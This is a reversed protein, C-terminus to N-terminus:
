EPEREVRQEDENDLEAEIQSETPPASQFGTKLKGDRGVLFYTPYQSVAFQREIEGDDDLVIPFNVPHEALFKAASDSGQSSHVGMVVFGHDQYKEQLRNIEPLKKICPGCWTAWFDILIVKGKLEDPTPLAIPGIPRGQLVPMPKGLLADKIEAAAMMARAQYGPARLAVLLDGEDQARADGCFVEALQGDAFGAAGHGNKLHIHQFRILTDISQIDRTPSTCLWSWNDSEVLFLRGARCLSKGEPVDGIQRWDDSETEKVERYVRLRGLSERVFYPGYEVSVFPLEPHSKIVPTKNPDLKALVIKWELEDPAAVLTAVLWGNQDSLTLTQQPIDLGDGKLASITKRAPLETVATEQALAVSAVASLIIAAFAHHPKTM